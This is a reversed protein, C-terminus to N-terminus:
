RGQLIILVRSQFFGERLIRCSLMVLFLSTFNVTTLQRVKTYSDKHTHCESSSCATIEQISDGDTSGESDTSVLLSANVAIRLSNLSPERVPVDQQLAMLELSKHTTDQDRLGNGRNGPLYILPWLPVIATSSPSDEVQLVFLRQFQKREGRKSQAGEGQVNEGM